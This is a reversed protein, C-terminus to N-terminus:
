QRQPAPGLLAAAPAANSVGGSRNGSKWRTFAAQDAPNCVNRASDNKFTFCSQVGGQHFKGCYFCKLKRGPTRRGSSNGRAGRGATRQREPLRTVAAAAQIGNTEVRTAHVMRQLQAIDAGKDDRRIAELQLDQLMMAGLALFDDGACDICARTWQEFYPYIRTALLSSGPYMGPRIRLDHDLRQEIIFRERENTILHAWTRPDLAHFTSRTTTPPIVVDKKKALSVYTLEANDNDDDSSTHQLPRGRQLYPPPPPPVYAAGAAAPAANFSVQAVKSSTDAMADGAVVPHFRVRRYICGPYPFCLQVTRAGAPINLVDRIGTCATSYSVKLAVSRVGRAVTSEVGLVVGEWTTWDQVGDDLLSMNQWEVEFVIGGSIGTARAQRDYRDIVEALADDSLYVSAPDAIVEIPEFVVPVGEVHSSGRAVSGARNVVTRVYTQQRKPPLLSTVQTRSADGFPKEARTAVRPPPPPQSPSTDDDDDNARSAPSPNDPPPSATSNSQRTFPNVSGGSFASKPRPQPAADQAAASMPQATETQTVPQPPAPEAAAAAAAAAARAATVRLKAFNPLDEDRLHHHEVFALLNDGLKDDVYDPRTLQILAASYTFTPFPHPRSTKKRASSVRAEQRTAPQEAAALRQERLFRQGAEPLEHTRINYQDVAALFVEKEEVCWEYSKANGIINDKATYFRTQRTSM